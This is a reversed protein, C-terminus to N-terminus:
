LLGGGGKKARAMERMKNRPNVVQTGPYRALAALERRGGKWRSLEHLSSQATPDIGM